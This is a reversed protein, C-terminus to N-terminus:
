GLTADTKSNLNSNRKTCFLGESPRRTPPSMAAAEWTSGL